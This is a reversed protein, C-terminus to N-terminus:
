SSERVTSWAATKALVALARGATKCVSFPAHELTALEDYYVPMTKFYCRNSRARLHIPAKSYYGYDDRNAGSIQSAGLIDTRKCRTQDNTTRSARAHYYKVVHLSAILASNGNNSNYECYM